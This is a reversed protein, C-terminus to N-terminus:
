QVAARIGEVDTGLADTGEIPKLEIVVQQLGAAGIAKFCSKQDIRSWIVYKGKPRMQKLALYVLTMTLGTAAPLVCCTKAAKIGAIHIADLALYRTLQVVLSSGM